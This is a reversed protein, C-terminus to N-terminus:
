FLPGNIDVKLEGKNAAVILKKALIEREEASLQAMLMQLQGRDEASWARRSLGEEILRHATDYEPSRAPAEREEPPAEEQKPEPPPPAAVPPAPVVPPPSAAAAALLEQRVAARIAEVDAPSARPAAAAASVVPAQSPATPPESPALALWMGGAGLAAGAAVAMVLRLSM